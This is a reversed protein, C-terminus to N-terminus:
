FRKWHRVALIATQLKKFVHYLKEDSFVYNNVRENLAAKRLAEAGIKILEDYM